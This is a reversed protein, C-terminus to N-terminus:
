PLWGYAFPNSPYSGLIPPSIAFDRFCAADLLVEPAHYPLSCGLLMTCWAQSPHGTCSGWINSPLSFSCVVEQQGCAPPKVQFGPVNVLDHGGPVRPSGPSSSWQYAVHNDWVWAGLENGKADWMKGADFVSHNTDIHVTWPEKSELECPILTEM